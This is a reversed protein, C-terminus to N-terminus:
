TMTVSGSLNISIIVRAMGQITVQVAPASFCPGLGKEVTFVDYNFAMDGALFRQQESVSLGDLPGDLLEFEMPEEPGVNECGFLAILSLGIFFHIIKSM